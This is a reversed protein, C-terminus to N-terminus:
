KFLEAFLGGRSAFGAPLHSQVASLNVEFEVKSVEPPLPMSVTPIETAAFLAMSDTALTRDFRELSADRWDRGLTAAVVRDIKILLEAQAGVQPRIEALLENVSMGGGSSEVVISAVCIDVRDDRLQDLQFHHNRHPRVCTKVEVRQSQKAFDFRESSAGHWAVLAAVVDRATAILLLEGWLGQVSRRSPQDLARFMETLEHVVRSIDAASANAPLWELLGSAVRLFFQQVARDSSSCEVVAFQGRSINNGARLECAVDFRASLGRTQVAPPRAEGASQVFLLAPRDDATRAVYTDVRGPVLTVGFHSGTRQNPPLTRVFIADVEIM